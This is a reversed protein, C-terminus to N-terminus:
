QAIQSDIICIFLIMWCLVDYHFAKCTSCTPCSISQRDYCTQGRYLCVHTLTKQPFGPPFVDHHSAEHLLCFSELGQEFKLCSSKMAELGQHSGRTDGFIALKHPSLAYTQGSTLSCHILWNGVIQSSYGRFCM